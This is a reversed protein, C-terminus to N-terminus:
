QPYLFILLKNMIYLSMIQDDNIFIKLKNNLDEKSEIKKNTYNRSLIDKKREQTETSELPRKTLMWQKYLYSNLNCLQKFSLSNLIDYFIDIEISNFESLFNFHYYTGIDKPSYIRYLLNPDIVLNGSM